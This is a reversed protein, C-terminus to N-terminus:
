VVFDLSVASALANGSDGVISLFAENREEDVAVESDISMSHVALPYNM